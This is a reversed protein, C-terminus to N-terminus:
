DNDQYVTVMSKMLAANDILDTASYYCRANRDMCMPKSDIYM